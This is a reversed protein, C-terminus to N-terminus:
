DSKLQRAPTQYLDEIRVGQLGAKSVALSSLSGAMAQM